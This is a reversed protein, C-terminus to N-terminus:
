INIFNQLKLSVAKAVATHKYTVRLTNIEDNIIGYIYVNKGSVNADLITEFHEVIKIYNM